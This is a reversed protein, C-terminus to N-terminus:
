VKLEERSVLLGHGVELSVTGIGDYELGVALWNPRVFKLDLVTHNRAGVGVTEIKFRM